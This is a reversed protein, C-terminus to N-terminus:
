NSTLQSDDRLTRRPGSMTAPKVLKTRQRGEDEAFDLTLQFIHPNEWTEDVSAISKTM